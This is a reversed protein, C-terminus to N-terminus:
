EAKLCIVKFTEAKDGETPAALNPADSPTTLSPAGSPTTLNPAGTPPTPTEDSGEEKIIVDGTRNGTTEDGTTEDSGFHKVEGDPSIMVGKKFGEQAGEPLAPPNEVTKGDASTCTVKTGATPSHDDAMASGGLGAIACVAVAGLVALRRKYM